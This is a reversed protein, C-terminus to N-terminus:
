KVVQEYMNELQAIHNNIDFKKASEFAGQSLRELELPNDILSALKDKLQNVNGAEFLLGNYGDEVIEPIGGINSGIVPTGYKFSEIMILGFPEYWISPVVTVSAKEYLGKLEEWEMFGHFTIRSDGDAIEKLREAYNGRGAIHLRINKCNIQKFASILIHVGKVKTLQGSYLIDITEYNKRAPRAGDLGIANFLRLSRSNNFLGTERLKDIVFQSPATVVDPKNDVLLKKVRNVVRCIPLPSRCIEGSVKLLSYRPCVLSYDHATLVLPLDLSKVARFTSLSLGRANHIHVVDPREKKLIRRVIQYAYFNWIDGGHWLPRM